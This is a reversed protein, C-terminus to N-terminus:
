RSRFSLIQDQTGGFILDQVQPDRLFDGPFGLSVESVADLREMMKPPLHVQLCGLNDRLQDVTRAGIIPIPDPKKQRLWALAVQSPSCGLEQAVSCVERAIALTRENLFHNQLRSPRNGAFRGGAPNQPDLYKGTLVGGGLPSWPLVALELAEAMPLLEREPTRELLSYEIQLAVFPTWGRLSALTNAQAVVWAPTDSIGVYLVKGLRVLDDLGRMVEEVPTLFDWAHVWFVDVYDTRLRKLSAELSQVMNKRHNGARNVKGYEEYLTYKTGIVLNARESSIWEGLWRESTGETYRNASDFFNGGAQLFADFIRKSEEKDSGHGWVQGFTMTGLCIESVRLGSKGLLRYKM